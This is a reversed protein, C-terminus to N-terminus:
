LDFLRGLESRLADAEAEDIEPCAIEHVTEDPPITFVMSEAGPEGRQELVRIARKRLLLLSLLYRLSAREAADERILRLLFDRAVGLDFVAKRTEPEPVEATWHSYPEGRRAADAFCSECWDARRFEEGGDYLASTVQSGPAFVTECGSCAGGRREFKWPTAASSM